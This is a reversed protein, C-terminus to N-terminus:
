RAPSAASILWDIQEIAARTLTSFTERSPQGTIPDRPSFSSEGRKHPQVDLSIVIDCKRGYDAAKWDAALEHIKM